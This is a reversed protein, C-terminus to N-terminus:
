YIKTYSVGDGMPDISEGKILITETKYVGNAYDVGISAYAGIDELSFSHYIAGKLSELISGANLVNDVTVVQQAMESLMKLQHEKRYSDGPSGINNGYKDYRHRARAYYLAMEGDLKSRGKALVLEGGPTYMNEEVTIYLGGFSDIVEKFGEFNVEVYEDIRYGLLSQIISCLFNIGRNSFNGGTFHIISSGINPAANIKFIGPSYYIGEQKLANKVVSDYPVYADRPISIMKANKEEQNISLVIITDTLGASEDRGLLLININSDPVSPAKFSGSATADGPKGTAGPEPAPTAPVFGSITPGPPPTGETSENNFMNMLPLGYNYYALGLIVVIVSLITLVITSTKIKM